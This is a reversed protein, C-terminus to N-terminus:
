EFVGSTCLPVDIEIFSPLKNQKMTILNVLGLHKLDHEKTDKSLEWQPHTGHAKPEMINPSAVTGFNKFISYIEESFIFYFLIFHFWLQFNWLIQFTCSIDIKFHNRGSFIWIFELFVLNQFSFFDTSSTSVIPGVACAVSTCIYGPTNQFEVLQTHCNQRFLLTCLMLVVKSSFASM